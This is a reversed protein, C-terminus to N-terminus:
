NNPAGADIWSKIKAIDCANMKNGGQPMPKFGPSHNIAGYLKGDTARAKVATHNSLNIGGSPAGGSHCGLCGNSQLLPVVHQAYSVTTPNNCNAVQPYLEEEVDYYCSSFVLTAALTALLITRKM